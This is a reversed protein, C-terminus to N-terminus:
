CRIRKLGELARGLSLHTPFLIAISDREDDESKNDDEEDEEGRSDNTDEKLEELLGNTPNETASDLFCQTGVIKVM